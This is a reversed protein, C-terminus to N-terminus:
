GGIQVKFLGTSISNPPGSETITEGERAAPMKNIFVKSSGPTVVGGVHPKGPLPPDILPCAHFDV